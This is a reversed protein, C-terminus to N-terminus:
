WEGKGTEERNWEKSSKVDSVSCQGGADDPGKHNDLVVLDFM